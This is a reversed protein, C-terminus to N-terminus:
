NIQPSQQGKISTKSLLMSEHPFDSPSDILHFTHEVNWLWLLTLNVNVVKTKVHGKKILVNHILFTYTMRLGMLLNTDGLSAYLAYM